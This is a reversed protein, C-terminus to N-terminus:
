DFRLWQAADRVAREHDERQQRAQRTAARQQAEHEATERNTEQIALKLTDRHYKEVEEMTTGELYIKDGSVSAIGPRHMTTWRPPRNWHPIFREAWEHTPRRSLQFPIRYLASGRSGDRRPTTVEDVVVGLIRIPETPSEERLATGREETRRALTARPQGIPPAIPRLGHLTTLLDHYREDLYPNGRLDIYYKGRLWTPSAEEWHNGARFVPIFKRQNQSTMTEAPPWCSVTSAKTM